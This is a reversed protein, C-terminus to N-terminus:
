GLATSSLYQSFVPDLPSGEVLLLGKMNAMYDPLCAPAGEVVPVPTAATGLTAEPLDCITGSLANARM